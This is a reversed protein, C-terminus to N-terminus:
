TMVPAEEEPDAPDIATFTPGLAPPTPPSRVRFAPSTVEAPALLADPPDTDILEPPEATDDLPETFNDVASEPLEPALPPITSAVPNAATPVDPPIERRVPSEFSPEAPSITSRAPFLVRSAPASTRM